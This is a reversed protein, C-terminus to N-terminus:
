FHVQKRLSTMTADGRLDDAPADTHYSKADTQLCCLLSQVTLPTVGLIAFYIIRCREFSDFTQVAAQLTHM